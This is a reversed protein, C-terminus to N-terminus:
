GAAPLRPRGGAVPVLVATAIAMVGEGRGTFGLGDTTTASVTVPAGLARTLTAFAEHRRASLRPRNGIVQVSVHKVRWGAGDPDNQGIHDATARLFVDGHAGAFQPDDTGFVSGIDGMGAASLIADCIAHSVADGDSHGALGREGPWLLGALWLPDAPDDSFAHVDLGIGVRTDLVDWDPGLILEARNLDWATTIKFALENGAIVRVPHGIASVLGADDTAEHGAEAYARELIARPFGQPTQVATLHSRDVTEQVVDVVVRKVTDAVPLGPIVGDGSARVEAIVRDFQSSPTLARAADHVLVTGVSPSLAALGNQVSQQRTDGGAVVAVLAESRGAALELLERASEDYEPPAVVVVQVPEGIGFVRTLTHALMPWGALHVFAKPMGAGLRTGSGAAVVIVAVDPQSEM